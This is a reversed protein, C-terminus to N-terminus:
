KPRAQSTDRGPEIKMEEKYSKASRTDWSYEIATNTLATLVARGLGNATEAMM